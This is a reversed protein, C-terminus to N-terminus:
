TPADDDRKHQDLMAKARASRTAELLREAKTRGHKVANEEAVRKQEARARAKRVRNLNVPKEDM